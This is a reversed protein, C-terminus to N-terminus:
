RNRFKEFLAEARKKRKDTEASDPVYIGDKMVIVDGERADPSIKSKPIDVMGGDQECVAFDGEFRDIVTM